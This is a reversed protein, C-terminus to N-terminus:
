NTPEVDLAEVLFGENGVAFCNILDDRKGVILREQGPKFVDGKDPLVTWDSVEKRAFAIASDVDSFVKELKFAINGDNDGCIIFVGHVQSTTEIASEGLVCEGDVLKCGRPCAEIATAM